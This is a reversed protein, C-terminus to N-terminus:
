GVKLIKLKLDLYKIFKLLFVFSLAIDHDHHFHTNNHFSCPAHKYIQTHAM